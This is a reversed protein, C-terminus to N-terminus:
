QNAKDKKRRYVVYAIVFAGVVVMAGGVILGITLENAGTKEPAPTVIVTAKGDEVRLTKEAVVVGGEAGAAPNSMEIPEGYKSNYVTNAGSGTPLYGVERVILKISSEGKAGDKVSFHLYVLEGTDISNATGLYIVRYPYQYGEEFNDVPGLSALPKGFETGTLELVNQDYEVRLYLDNIGGNEDVNVTVLLDGDQQKALLSLKVDPAGAAAAVTVSCFCAAVLAIVFVFVVLRKM